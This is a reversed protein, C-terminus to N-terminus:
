SDARRNSLGDVVLSCPQHDLWVWWTVQSETRGVRLVNEPTEYYKIDGSLKRGTPLCRSPRTASNTLDVTDIPAPRNQSTPRAPMPLANSSNAM